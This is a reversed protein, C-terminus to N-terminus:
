EQGGDTVAVREWPKDLRQRKEYCNEIIELIHVGSEAPVYSVTDSNLSEVFRNVQRTMREMSTTPPNHERTTVVTKEDTRETWLRVETGALEGRLRGQTGVIDITDMIDRSGSIELTGTTDTDAVSFAIEANAELGGYSDDAYSDVSLDRGLIWRIVDLLHPGKDTLVGGGALQESVRYTSAFDWETEDGFRAVVSEIEGIAGQDVLAHLLRCAPSERYQRSIAYQVNRAASLETLETAGQSSDAVPKETLIAVDAEICDRAIAEHYKPPTSLIVADVENLIASHDTAYQASQCQNAVESARQEDVDVIWDVSAAHNEALAPIYRTQAVAGAGIVAFRHM